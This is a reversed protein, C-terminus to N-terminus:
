GKKAVGVLTPWLLRDKITYGAQMEEVSTGPEADSPVEIMAQRGQLWLFASLRM